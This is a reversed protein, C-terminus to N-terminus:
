SCLVARTGLPPGFTSCLSVFICVPPSQSRCRSAVHFLLSQEHYWITTGTPIQTARNEIWAVHQDHIVEFVNIAVATIFAWLRWVAVKSSSTLDNLLDQSSDISPQLANLSSMNQKEAIISDYIEAITRAM